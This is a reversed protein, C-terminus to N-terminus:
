STQLYPAILVDVAQERTIDIHGDDHTVLAAWILEYNQIRM